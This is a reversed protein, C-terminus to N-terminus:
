ISEEFAENPVDILSEYETKAQEVSDDYGTLAAFPSFQAARDLMSMPKHKTSVPRSLHLIDEYSDNM